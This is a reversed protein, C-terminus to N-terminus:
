LPPPAMQSPLVVGLLSSGFPFLHLLALSLCFNYFFNFPHRSFLFISHVGATRYVWGPDPLSMVRQQYSIHPVMITQHTCSMEGREWFAAHATNIACVRRAVRGWFLETAWCGTKCRLSICVALRGIDQDDLSLLLSCGWLMCHTKEHM